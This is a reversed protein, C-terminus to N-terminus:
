ADVAATVHQEMAGTYVKLLRDVTDAWGFQSAHTLAGRRLRRLRRPTAVLDGLVRAYDAPDHGAVLVGSV